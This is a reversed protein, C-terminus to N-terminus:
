FCSTLYAVRGFSIYAANQWNEWVYPNANAARPIATIFVLMGTAYLYLILTVIRSKHIFHIIAYKRKKEEHSVRRYELVRIYFWGMLMGLGMMLFNTHPKNFLSSFLYFNAFSLVGVTLKLKYSIIFLVATGGIILLSM